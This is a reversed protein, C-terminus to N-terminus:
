RSIIAWDCWDEKINHMDAQYDGWCRSISEDYTEMKVTPLLSQVTVVGRGERGARRDLDKWEPTGTGTKVRLCQGSLRLVNGLCSGEPQPVINTGELRVARGLSAPTEADGRKQPRRVGQSTALKPAQRIPFSGEGRVHREEQGLVGAVAASWEGESARSGATTPLQAM